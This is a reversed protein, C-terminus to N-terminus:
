KADDKDEEDKNGNSQIESDVEEQQPRSGLQGRLLNLLLRQFNIERPGGGLQQFVDDIIEDEEDTDVNSFNARAMFRDDSTQHNAQKNHQSSKNEELKANQPTWLNVKGSFCTSAIIPYHPHWSVDRVSQNGSQGNQCVVAQDGTLLDYIHVKGNSSGTYVYRQGTTQMPSFNCRILTRAVKHNKFTFISTDEAHKVQRNAWPYDDSRYDYGPYGRPKQVSRLREASVMKRLDWVKLLQDKGNSAVHIGDGKSAVHTIGECHGVFAGVERNNGLARRDWIKILSDDSGTFIINSHMRNAFCVSNIEDDHSQLVRTSVRNSILDYVMIESSKTGALIERSDGSFKISMIGSGRYWGDDRHDEFKIRETKKGLTELDVLQVIPNITSYILYQENECVDMDTVTWSIERAQIRKKLIWNYPDSTNYLVVEGQSSSYYLNGRTTFKGGYVSDASCNYQRFFKNPLISQYIDSEEDLIIRQMREQRLQEVELESKQSQKGTKEIHNCNNHHSIKKSLEYVEQIENKEDSSSINDLERENQKKADESEIKAKQGNKAPGQIDEQSQKQQKIIKLLKAQQKQKMKIQSSKGMTLANRQSAQLVKQFINKEDDVLLTNWEANTAKTIPRQEQPRPNERFFRNM